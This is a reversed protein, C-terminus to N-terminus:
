VVEDGFFEECGFVIGEFLGECDAGSGRGGAVAIAVARVGWFGGEGADHFHKGGATCVLVFMEGKGFGKTM